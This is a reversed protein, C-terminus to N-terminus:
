NLLFISCYFEWDMNWQILNGFLFVLLLCLHIWVFSNDDSCYFNKWENQRKKKIQVNM